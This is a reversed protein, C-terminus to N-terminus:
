GRRAHLLLHLAAFGDGLDGAPEANRDPLQAAGEAGIDAEAGAVVEGPQPHLPRAVQENVGAQRDVLDAQGAAIGVVRGEDPGKTPGMVLCGPLHPASAHWSRCMFGRLLCVASGPCSALKGSIEPLTMFIMAASGAPMSPM